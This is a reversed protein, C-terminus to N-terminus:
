RKGLPVILKEALTDGKVLDLGYRNWDAKLLAFVGRSLTKGFMRQAQDRAETMTPPRALSKIEDALRQVDAETPGKPKETEPEPAASESDADYRYVLNGGGDLEPDHLDGRFKLRVGDAHSSLLFIPPAVDENGTCCRIPCRPRRGERHPSSDPLPSAAGGPGAAFRGMVFHFRGM